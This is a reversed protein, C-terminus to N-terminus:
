NQGRRLMLVFVITSLAIMLAILVSLAISAIKYGKKGCKYYGAFCCVAVVSSIAQAGYALITMPIVVILALDETSPEKGIFGCCISTGFVCGVVAIATLVVAVIVRAKKVEM